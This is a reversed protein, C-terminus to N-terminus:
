EYAFYWASRVRQQGAPRFYLYDHEGRWYYVLSDGRVRDPRGLVQRLTSQPQGDLREGLVRLLQHFDSGFRACAPCKRQKLRRYEAGLQATSTTFFTEKPYRSQCCALAQDEGAMPPTPTACAALGSLSITLVRLLRKVLPM